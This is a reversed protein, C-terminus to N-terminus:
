RRACVAGSKMTELRVKLTDPDGSDSAAEQITKRLAREAALCSKGAACEVCADLWKDQASMAKAGIEGASPMLARCAKVRDIAEQAERGRLQALGITAPTVQVANMAAGAETLKKLQEDCAHQLRVSEILVDLVAAYAVREAEIKERSPGCGFLVVCAVGAFLVVILPPRM